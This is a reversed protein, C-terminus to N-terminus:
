LAVCHTLRWIHVYHVVGHERPGDVAGAPARVAKAFGGQAKSLVLVVLLM